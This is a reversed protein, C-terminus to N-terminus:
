FAGFNGCAMGGLASKSAGVWHVSYFLFAHKSLPIEVGEPQTQRREVACIDIPAPGCGSYRKRTIRWNSRDSADPSTDTDVQSIRFCIAISNALTRLIASRIGISGSACM